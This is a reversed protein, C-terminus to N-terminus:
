RRKIMIPLALKLTTNVGYLNLLFIAMLIFLVYKFVNKFIHVMTKRRKKDLEDKGKIVIKDLTSNIIKYLILTIGIILLTGYVEKKSLFKLISLM